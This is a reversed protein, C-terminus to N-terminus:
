TKLAKRGREAVGAVEEVAAPRFEVQSVVDIEGFLKLFGTGVDDTDLVHGADALRSRNGGQDLRQLFLDAQRQVEVGVVGAADGGGRHQGGDFGTAIRDIAGEIREGAKGRLGVEAPDGRRELAALAVWFDIEALQLGQRVVPFAHAVGVGRELRFDAGARRVDVVMFHGAALVGVQALLRPGHAQFM